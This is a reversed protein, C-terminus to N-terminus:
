CRDAKTLRVDTRKKVKPEQKNFYKKDHYVHAPTRWGLIAQKRWNNYRQDFKWLEKRFHSLSNFKSLSILERYLVKHYAEIKGRGKPHYPRGFILKIKHKAAEEKFMRSVFQTGNDLYVQKPKRGLRLAWRLANAAEEKGKRLYAKSKVRYRSCDDIFGTVYVKGVGHIRFQFTDGQWMSDVHKRQFRKCPQPKAKIRFLLGNRKLIKHVTTWHLPIGFQHKIRRAGWAPYRRKLSIIRGILYRSTQRNKKKPATSIPKLGDVGGIEFRRNWRRITRDSINYLQGIEKATKIGESYLVVAKTRIDM